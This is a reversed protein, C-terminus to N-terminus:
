CLFNQILFTATNFMSQTVSHYSFQSTVIPQDKPISAHGIEIATLGPPEGTVISSPTAFSVATM